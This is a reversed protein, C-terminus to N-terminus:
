PAGGPRVVEQPSSAAPPTAATDSDGTQIGHGGPALLMVALVLVLFVFTAVTLLAVRNRAKSEM